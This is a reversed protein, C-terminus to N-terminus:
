GEADQEMVLQAPQATAVEAPEFLRGQDTAEELRKKALECYEESLECMVARRGQHYACLLTTGAGGFPDLVLSPRTDADCDCTPRFGITQTEIAQGLGGTETYGQGDFQGADAQKSYRNPHPKHETQTVREWAAGCEACSRAANGALVCPEILKEPFVAFHAGPFPQTNVTWVNRKNRGATHFSHEKGQTALGGRGDNQAKPGFAHAAKDGQTVHPERIADADYWYKASKALLFIHEHSNTPRDTVSEPMPNSNGTLVGSALAFLHPEDQLSISWFKRARSQHIAVVETDAKSNYSAQVLRLQGRWMPFKKGECTAFGRKLRLKYGLRAAITRLDAALEDNKCFGIRWRKNPKDFGGDGDLYGQLLAALFENSRAWCRQHLHKYKATYGSVYQDIIGVLAPGHIHTQVAKGHVKHTVCTGDYAAAIEELRRFRDTECEHGAINLMTGDKGKCGEAIYMGVFWGIMEDPLADPQSPAAPEPLKCHQIIDGVTIDKALVLGRQTPWKHDPTCGIREGNRLEIELEGTLKPVEGKRKAERRGDQREKRGPAPAVEEWSVAQNWKEGDWLQVTAPDLRVLDKVTTPMEGKQTRAYVRTGGSLCKAWIIDSRLWWGDAQLALAVLAPIMVLDKPKFGSPPKVTALPMAGADLVSQQGTNKRSTNPGAQAAYSSGLNLWVTGDDRLVRRVGRFIEVMNAVYEEPTPELGLCGLWAGCKSCTASSVPEDRGISGPNTVQKRDGEGGDNSRRQYTADQWEHECEADGGWVSPEVGSYARLGWYPPSTVCTQVSGDPLQALVDRADGHYITLGHEESQWYPKM